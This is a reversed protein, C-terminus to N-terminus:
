KDLFFVPGPINGQAAGRSVSLNDYIVNEIPLTVCQTKNSLYPVFLKLVTSGVGFRFLEKIKM